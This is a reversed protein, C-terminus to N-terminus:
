GSSMLDPAYQSMKRSFPDPVPLTRSASPLASVDKESNWTVLQTSQYQGDDSLDWIKYAIPLYRNQFPNLSLCRYPGPRHARSDMEGYLFALVSPGHSLNLTIERCPLRISRM